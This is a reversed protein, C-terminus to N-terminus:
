RLNWGQTPRNADCDWLQLPAGLEPTDGESELCKGSAGWAIKGNAIVWHQASVKSDCPMIEIHTIKQEDEAVTLCQNEYVQLAEDDSGYSWAQGESGDCKALQVINGSRDATAYVCLTRDRVPQLKQATRMPQQAENVDAPVAKATDDGCAILSALLTFGALSRNSMMSSRMKLPANQGNM